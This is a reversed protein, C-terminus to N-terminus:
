ASQVDWWITALARPGPPPAAELFARVEPEREEPLCLRIRLFHAELEPDIRRVSEGDWLELHAAIGMEHLVEMLDHPTPTTPRELNWFHRWASAMGSLPHQQPMEIVVRHRAHSHLQQLFPVIGRVNYVVHHCTVVDATPTQDAVAPWDGFIATAAVGRQTATAQVMDLMEQQHDVGIVQAAPPVVAFAAVGGGCGVDLVSGAEPMAERARIHSPTAAIEDPLTFLAPPHIWPSEPAQSLISEPIAWADLADAWRRAANQHNM